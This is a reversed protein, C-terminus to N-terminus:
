FNWQIGLGVYYGFKPSFPEAFPQVAGVGAQVGINLRQKKVVPVPTTQIITHTKQYVEISDLKPSVGSVWARYTSDSYFRQEKPMYLTDARVIYTTDHIPIPISDHIPKSAVFVPKNVRITDWKIVEVTDPVFTDLIAEFHAKVALWSVIAGIALAALISVAGLVFTKSM